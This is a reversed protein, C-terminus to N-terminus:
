LSMVGRKKKVTKFVALIPAGITSFYINFIVSFAIQWNRESINFLNIIIMLLLLQIILIIMTKNEEKFSKILRFLLCEHVKFSELDLSLECLM